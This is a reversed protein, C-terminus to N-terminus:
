QWASGPEDCDSVKLTISRRKIEAIVSLGPASLAARFDRVPDGMEAERQFRSLSADAEIAREDATALIQALM